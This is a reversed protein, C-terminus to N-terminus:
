AQIEKIKAKDYEGLGFRSAFEIHGPERYFASEKLAAASRDWVSVAGMQKRKDEIIDILLRDMAIPDTGVMLRKPEFIFRDQRVFPGGQWVGKLGDMIHLVTKSRLPELNYLTGIFSLTNTRTNKHSRAVNSFSGYAINKLCGTVGAAGHDKMNPVNIIKTVKQTVLKSMFSRTEEEGFFDTEVYTRQDYKSIGGRRRGDEMAHMQVGPPVVAPYNADVMQNDFREYVYVNQAPVGIAVLCRAIEAVVLPHSMIKPAGSCNVKIAVIDAPQIFSRWADRDDSAGTLAKMSSALAQKVSEANQEATAHVVKGRYRNPEGVSAYPTVSRYTPLADGSAAGAAAAAVPVQLFHRRLIDM